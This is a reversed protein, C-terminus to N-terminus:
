SRLEVRDLRSLWECLAASAKATNRGLELISPWRRPRFAAWAVFRETHFRGEPDVFRNLPPMEFDLEDSIAKVCLFGTGHIRATEAVAAAEMDVAQAQFKDHLQQKASNGVVQSATVLVGAGLGTRYQANSLSDVIVSPIFLTGVKLERELAGAVGASVVMRPHYQSIVANAARSAADRGIGGSIAVFDGRERVRFTRGEHTFRREPWDRALPAIEGEMAAIIAVTNM